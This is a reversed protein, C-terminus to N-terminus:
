NLRAGTEQDFLLQVVPALAYNTAYMPPAIIGGARRNDFYADNDENYALAYYISEHATIEIPDKAVYKKGVVKENLPM